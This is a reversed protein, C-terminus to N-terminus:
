AFELWAGGTTALCPRVARLMEVDTPLNETSRFFALEDIVVVRARLGRISAPRCPYAAITIGNTLKVTDATVSMVEDKLAPVIEFPAKAYSLATRIAGRYDQSLALAYIDTGDPEPTATMAEHDLITLGARSKGSQRGGIFVTDSYGGPPPAYETRGTCKKFIKLEAENDLPLGYVAKFFVLWASWPDLNKFCPLAGLLQPHMLNEIINM